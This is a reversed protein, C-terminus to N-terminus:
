IFGKEIMEELQVKLKKLEAPALRYPARSVPTTGPILDIAFVVDRDPPLGPLDKPFVSIYERVVPVDEPSLNKEKSEDYISALFGMCGSDLLKRAQLASITPVARGRSTGQFEFPKAKLPKLCVKKKRCDIHAHHTSLWDMGLIVDYDLMDIEILNAYLVYDQVRIPVKKFYFTSQYMGGTPTATIFPSELKLRDGELRDSFRTAIYSHTAGSDLLTYLLLNSVSLQGSVSTSPGAEVDKECLSYVRANPRGAPVQNIPTAKTAGKPM